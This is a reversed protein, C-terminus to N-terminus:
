DAIAESVAYIKNAKAKLLVKGCELITSGTTIVDNNYVWGV